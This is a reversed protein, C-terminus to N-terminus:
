SDRLEEIYIEVRPNQKDYLVRSGDTGGVVNSNDDVIVGYKTLIDMVGNLLNPLDIGTTKSKYNKGMYFLCKFNKKESIGYKYRNLFWGSSEEFELYASSPVLKQTSGKGCVPCKRGISIIQSSNKKTRPELPITIMAYQM